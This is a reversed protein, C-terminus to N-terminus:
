PRWALRLSSALRPELLAGPRELLSGDYLVRRRPVRFCLIVVLELVDLVILGTNLGVLEVDLNASEVDLNALRVDLNVLEVDLNALPLGLCHAPLVVIVLSIRRRFPCCRRRLFSSLFDFLPFVCSRQSM